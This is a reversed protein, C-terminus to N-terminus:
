LSPTLSHNQFAHVAVSLTMFLYPGFITNAGLIRARSAIIHAVSPILLATKFTECPSTGTRWRIQVKVVFVWFRKAREQCLSPSDYGSADTTQAALLLSGHGPLDLAGLHERKKRHRVPVSAVTLWFSLELSHFLADM